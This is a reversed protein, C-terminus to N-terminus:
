SASPDEESGSIDSSSDSDKERGHGGGIRAVEVAKNTRIPHKLICNGTCNGEPDVQIPGCGECLVVCARGQEWDEQTTIGALDRYDEGFNEISCQKCFDAM